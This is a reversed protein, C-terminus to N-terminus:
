GKAVGASRGSRADSHQGESEFETGPSESEFETTTAHGESELATPHDEGEFETAHSESEFETYQGDTDTGPCDSGEYAIPISGGSSGESQQTLVIDVPNPEVTWDKVYGPITKPGGRWQQLEKAANQQETTGPYLQAIRKLDGVSIRGKNRAGGMHPLAESGTKGKRLLVCQRTGDSGMECHDESNQMMISGMDFGTQSDCATYVALGHHTEASIAVYELVAPFFKKAFLYDTSILEGYQERKAGRPFDARWQPKMADRVGEDYGRVARPDFTLYTSRDGRLYEPKLGMVYGLEHAMQAILVDQKNPGSISQLVGFVLKHRGPTQLAGDYGWTTMSKTKWDRQEAGRGDDIVLTDAGVKEKTNRCVCAYNLQQQQSQPRGLKQFWSSRPRVICAPDPLIRLSSYDYVPMWLALAHTFIDVLSDASRTNAFCYHIRGEPWTRHQSPAITKEHVSLYRKDHDITKNSNDSGTLRSDAVGIIASTQKTDPVPISLALHRLLM